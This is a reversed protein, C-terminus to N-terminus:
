ASVSSPQQRIARATESEHGFGTSEIKLSKSGGLDSRPLAMAPTSVSKTQIGLSRNPRAVAAPPRKQLDGVLVGAM